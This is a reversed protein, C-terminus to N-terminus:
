VAAVDEDDDDEEDDDDLLLELEDVDVVTVVKGSTAVM